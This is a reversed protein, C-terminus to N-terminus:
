VLPRGTFFLIAILGQGMGFCCALLPVWRGASALSLWIFMPFLTSTYRGMGDFGGNLLPVLANVLVFAAAPMGIRRAIPGVSGLAFVTAALNLSLIPWAAVYRVLGVDWLTKLEIWLTDDLGQYTRNWASRQLEVWILPHGTIAYAYLTYAATGFLAATSAAFLRPSRSHTAVWIFLVLAITWGNPRSLGAVFSWAISRGLQGHKLHYWAGVVCLLLLAEAYVASFFVAFPYSAALIVTHSAVKPGFMELVFRHLYLAAGLFLAITVITAVWGMEAEDLAGFRFRAVYSALRVILPYAPFFNLNQQVGANGRWEYGSRAVSLYWGADWRLPLDRWAAVGQSTRAADPSFPMLVVAFYGLLIVAARTALTVATTTVSGPWKAEIQRLGAQVRSILTPRPALVHRVLAVLLALMWLRIPSRVSISGWLWRAPYIAAILGLGVCAITALDALRLSAPPKQVGLLIRV